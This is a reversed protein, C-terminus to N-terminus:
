RLSFKRTHFLPDNWFYVRKSRSKEVKVVLGEQFWLVESCVSGNDVESGGRRATVMYCRREELRWPTEWICWSLRSSGM